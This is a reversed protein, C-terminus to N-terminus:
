GIVEWYDLEDWSWQGKDGTEVHCGHIPFKEKNTVVGKIRLPTTGFVFPALGRLTGEIFSGAPPNAREVNTITWEAIDIFDLRLTDAYVASSAKYDVTITATDGNSRTVTLRDGKRITEPDIPSAPDLPKAM